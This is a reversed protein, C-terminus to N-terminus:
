SLQLKKFVDLFQKGAYTALEETKFRLRSGSGADAYSCVYDSGDFAFASSGMEFWPYWKLEDSDDWDPTWGENLAEAIVVVDYQAQFHDRVDEPLNSFDIKPRKTISYADDLSKVLQRVDTNEFVEKGVLDELLQKGKVDANNWAKRAQIPTITLNSM